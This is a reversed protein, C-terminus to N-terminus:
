PYYRIPNYYQFAGEYVPEAGFERGYTEPDDEGLPIWEPLWWVGTQGDVGVMDLLVGVFPYYATM